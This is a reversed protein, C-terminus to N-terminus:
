EDDSGNGDTTRTFMNITDFADDLHALVHFYAAMKCYPMKRRTVTPNRKNYKQVKVLLNLGLLDEETFLEADKFDELHANATETM